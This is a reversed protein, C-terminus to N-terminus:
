GMSEKIWASYVADSVQQGIQMDLARPLIRRPSPNSMMEALAHAAAQMMGSTIRTARADLAGRFLGPFILANNIQNWFDSRGTGAVAAGAEVAVDPRIEPEPNALAFIIPHSHMSRIMEATVVNAKSVGIFVDANEIASSLDGEGQCVNPMELIKEKAFNLERMKNIIGKSDCVLIGKPRPEFLTLMKVIAYGAAGAGNIVIQMDEIKRQTVRLANILASYVVIATGDQDDHFLPIGLDQLREVLEICRPASIDELNIGGFTPAVARVFAELEDVSHINVVLPVADIDAFKKFILAKGEMVPLAAEPGIDGLGLVATGDSIIAVSNNKGTYKYALEVNKAIRRCPEAVGPTYVRALDARTRVPSKPKVELIGGGLREREECCMEGFDKDKHDTM